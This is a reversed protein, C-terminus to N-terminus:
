IDILQINESYNSPIDKSYDPPISENDSDFDKDLEVLYTMRLLDEVERNLVDALALLAIRGVIRLGKDKTLKWMTFLEIGGEDSPCRKLIELFKEEEHGYRKLEMFIEEFDDVLATVDIPVSYEAIDPFKFRYRYQEEPVKTKDFIILCHLWQLIQKYFVRKTPGIKLHEEDFPHVHQHEDMM